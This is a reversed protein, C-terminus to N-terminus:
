KTLGKLHSDLVSDRYHIAAELAKSEYGYTTFLFSKNNMKQLKNGDEWVLKESFNVIWGAHQKCKTIPTIFQYGSQYNSDVNQFSNKVVEKWEELTKKRRNNPDKYLLEVVANLGKRYTHAGATHYKYFDLLMNISRSKWYGLSSYERFLPILLAMARVGEVRLSTEGAKNATAILSKVGISSLYKPLLEFLLTSNADAKQYLIINPIFSPAGSKGLRIRIYISGDGQGWKLLTPVLFGLLFLFSPAEPNDPYSISLKTCDGRVLNLSKLKELLSM